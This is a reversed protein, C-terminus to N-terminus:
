IAVSDVAGALFMERTKRFTLYGIIHYGVLHYVVLHYGVLHYGVLHYGIMTDLLTTNLLEYDFSLDLLDPWIM